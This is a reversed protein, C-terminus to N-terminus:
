AQPRPRNSGAMVNENGATLARLQLSITHRVAQTGSAEANASAVYFKVGGSAKTTTSVEVQLELNVSEVAFKIPEDAAEAMSETLEARLSRLVQTLGIGDDM